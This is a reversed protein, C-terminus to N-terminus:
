LVPLYIRFVAGQDPHGEAEIFGHHIEVVKKCIALGLGTGPYDSRGHLRHFMGFIHESFEPEFGIGNDSIEICYFHRIDSKFKEPLQDVIKCEINIIPRVDQRHYKLSNSILNEFLQNLQFEIGQVKPLGTSNIIANLEETKEKLAAKAISLIGNLDVIEFEPTSSGLRSFQLLDDILQQMRRTSNIMRRIYDKGTESLHDKEKEVLKDGFLQVKRLPEQLDHSAMYTFSSLQENMVELQLNKQELRENLKRLQVEATKIATIDQSVALVGFVKGAKDRLPLISNNHFGLGDLYPINEYYISEGKLARELDKIRDTEKLKPFSEMIHQGIVEERKKNYRVEVAKNIHLIRLDTDLVSIMSSINDIIMEATKTREELSRKLEFYDTLDYVMILAGYVDGNENKLPRYYADAFGNRVSYSGHIEDLSEGSLVRDLNKERESGKLYPFVDTINKGIIEERKVNFLQETAPNWEMVRKDRDIVAISETSLKVLQEAFNTRKVLEKRLLEEKTIDILIGTFASKRDNDSTEKGTSKFYVERGKPTIIRFTVEVTDQPQLLLGTVYEKNPDDILRIFENLTDFSHPETDILKFLNESFICKGTDADMLWHASLSIEESNRFMQNQLLLKSNLERLNKELLRQETVDQTTGRILTKGDADNVKRLWSHLYKIKNEDTVIRFDMEAPGDLKQLSSYLSVKTLDEPHIRKFVDARSIYNSGAVKELEYIRFMENSWLFTNSDVEIEWSGVLAIEQSMSLLELRSQLWDPVPKTSPSFPM